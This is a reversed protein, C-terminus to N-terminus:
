MPASYHRIAVTLLATDSDSHRRAEATVRNKEGRHLLYLNSEQLSFLSLPYNIGRLPWVATNSLTHPVDDSVIFSQKAQTCLVSFSLSRISVVSVKITLLTELPFPFQLSLKRYIM